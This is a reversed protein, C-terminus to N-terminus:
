VHARGIETRYGTGEPLMHARTDALAEWATWHAGDDSFRMRRVGTGTGDSWTLGLTVAPTSTILAGNNIIITGTPPATDLLIYDSFVASRNNMKDLYQIRVTKHGDGSPLTYARTAALPEWASWHAGDDSFRMRVVGGDGGSWTLALTVNPTNTASRNNNVVIGGAIVPVPVFQAFTVAKSM